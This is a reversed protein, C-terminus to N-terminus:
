FHDPQCSQPHQFCLQLHKGWSQCSKDRQKHDYSCKGKALTFDPSVLRKLDSLWFVLEVSRLESTIQSVVKLINSLFSYISGGVKVRNIKKNIIM